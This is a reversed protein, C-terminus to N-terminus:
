PQETTNTTDIQEPLLPRFIRNEIYLLAIKAYNESKM